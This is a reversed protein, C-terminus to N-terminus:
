PATRKPTREPPERIIPRMTRPASGKNIARMTAEPVAQLLLVSVTTAQPANFQAEPFVHRYAQPDGHVKLQASDM